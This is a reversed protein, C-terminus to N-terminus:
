HKGRPSTSTYRCRSDQSLRFVRPLLSAIASKRMPAVESAVVSSVLSFKSSSTKALPLDAKMLNWAGQHPWQAGQRVVM